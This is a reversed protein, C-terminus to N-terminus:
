PGSHKPWLEKMTRACGYYTATILTHSQTAPTWSSQGVHWHRQPHSCEELAETRYIGWGQITVLALGRYGGSFNPDLETVQNFCREAVANDDRSFRGIHWLGRQYMGWADLNQPSKRIALQREAAGIAPAIAISVAEAIEDQLVFINALPRDYREAWVQKGSEAEILRTTVRIRDDSKRVNGRLVYRV